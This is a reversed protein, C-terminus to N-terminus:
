NAVVVMAHRVVIDKHIYGDQLVDAVISEDLSDDDIHSVAFHYRTDFKENIAKIKAVGVNELVANLQNQIMLVGTAFGESADVNKLALNFNDIVPLLASVVERVGKDYIQGMEKTTRNRYNEFEAAQHKIKNLYMTNLEKLKKFDKNFDPSDTTQEAEDADNVIFDDIIEGGDDKGIDDYTLDDNM